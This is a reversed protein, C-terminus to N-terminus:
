NARFELGINFNQRLIHTQDGTHMATNIEAAHTINQCKIDAQAQGALTPKHKQQKLIVLEM